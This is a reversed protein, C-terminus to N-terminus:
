FKKENFIINKTEYCVDAFIMERRLIVSFRKKWLGLKKCSLHRLYMKTESKNNRFSFYLM